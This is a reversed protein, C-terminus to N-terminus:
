NGSLTKLDGAGTNAKERYTKIAKNSTATRLESDGTQGRVLDLPNAVMAALNSNTACGYNASTDGLSNAETTGKWDPCGPVSATARRLILRVSGDPATGAQASNDQTMLLGHRGVVTSIGATMDAPVYGANVVAISDGYGVNVSTLWGELRAAEDASLSNGTQRVDYVFSQYSVVPQHVSDVSRNATAMKETSCGSTALGLLAIASATMIPKSFGAIM